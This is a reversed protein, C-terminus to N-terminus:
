LLRMLCKRDDAQTARNHITAMKQGASHRWHAAFAKEIGAARKAEKLKSQALLWEDRVTMKVM